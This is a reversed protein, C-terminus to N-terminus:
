FVPLFGVSNAFFQLVASDHELVRGNFCYPFYFSLIPICCPECTAAAATKSRSESKQGRQAPATVRSDPSLSPGASVASSPASVPICLFLFLPRLVRWQGRRTM